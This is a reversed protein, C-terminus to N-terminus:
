LSFSNDAMKNLAKINNETIFFDPTRAPTIPTITESEILINRLLYVNSLISNFM